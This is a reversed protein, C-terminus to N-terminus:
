HRGSRRNGGANGSPNNQADHKENKALVEEAFESNIKYKLSKNKPSQSM